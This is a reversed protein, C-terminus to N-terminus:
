WEITNNKYRTEVPSAAVLDAYMNELSKRADLNVGLSEGYEDLSEKDQFEEMPILEVLAEYPTSEYLICENVSTLAKVEAIKKARTGAIYAKVAKLADANAIVKNALDDVSIGAVMAEDYLMGSTLPTVLHERAQAEMEVWSSMESATYGSTAQEFKKTATEEITKILNAQVESLPKEIATYGITPPTATLDEVKESDYYRRNHQGTVVVTYLGIANLEEESWKTFIEKPYQIGDITVPKPKNYVRTTNKNVWM